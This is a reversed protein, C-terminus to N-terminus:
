EVASETSVTEAKTNVTSDATRFVVAELASVREELSQFASRESNENVTSDQMLESTNINPM